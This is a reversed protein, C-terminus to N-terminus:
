ASAEKKQLLVFWAYNFVGEQMIEFGAREALRRWGARSTMLLSLVNGVAFMAWGPVWVAMLFRGGPKLVRHVESLGASKAPGLHDFANTSVAADVSAADLPLATLDAQVVEVRDAVGAVDLNHDLLARGGGDIYGADFRDVAIVRGDRLNRSLAVTTRGAGCGADLVVDRDGRVLDVMPLVVHDRSRFSRMILNGSFLSAGALLLAFAAPWWAPAAIEVAVALLLAVLAALGLGNMWAPGWGFDYGQAPARGRWRQVAGRLAVAYVSALLVVGGVLHFAAFLILSSSIAKLRPAFVLLLLGAIVGAAGVLWTHSHLARLTKSDPDSQTTKM